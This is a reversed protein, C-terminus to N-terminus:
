RKVTLPKHLCNSMSTTGLQSRLILGINRSSGLSHSIYVPQCLLVTSPLLEVCQIFLLQRIENETFQRLEWYVPHQPMKGLFKKKKERKSLLGPLFLINKAIEESIWSLGKQGKASTFVIIFRITHQCINLLMQPINCPFINRWCPLCFLVNGKLDSSTTRFLNRDCGPVNGFWQKHRLLSSLCPQSERISQITILKDLLQM